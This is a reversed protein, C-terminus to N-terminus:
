RVERIRIIREGPLVQDAVDMGRVVRGFVTYTGDLHPQPSHTVFWQSGGTDPGSLAMGLSGRQYLHRNLEDRIAYGPGGSTDGRPDGGQIVFNPVVRPWEQGDFFGRAALDLFSRVTLPADAAFLEVEIEGRETEIVAHPAPRRAADAAMRLYAASDVGTEVPLPAGWSSAADGFAAAVRQRVLYDNSRSFRALFARGASADKKAIAAAADVAALAADNMEAQIGTEYAALVDPLTAPDALAALGVLANTRAIVDPHDLGALLLARIPALSDGAATVAQELAAAAVRGDRDRVYAMVRDRPGIEAYARAVSARIRWATDAELTPLLRRARASDVTVLAALATQRTFVPRNADGATFALVEGGEWAGNGMRQLSEAATVAAYEDSGSVLAMLAAVARRDTYSGLNRIANIRVPAATDRDILGILTTMATERGIGASDAASASLARAAFSRVLPDTDSAAPALAATAAPEIRRSLAYAARWRLEADRASLWRAVAPVPTPRPQKWVALLAMGVAERAGPGEQAGALLRELADKAAPHRIKGLAYAAEGVVTPMSAVRAADAYPALLPVAATDAIQGLSFAATAAVSTDADALLRGLAPIARADRIRGASSAALRRTAASPSAFAADFAAADYERRDELRLFAARTPLDARPAVAAPACAALLAPALALRLFRSM